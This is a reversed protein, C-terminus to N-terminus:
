AYKEIFENLPKLLRRVSIQEDPSAIEMMEELMNRWEEVRAVAVDVGEDLMFDYLEKFM